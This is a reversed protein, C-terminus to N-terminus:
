SKRTNCELHHQPRGPNSLLELFGTLVQIVPYPSNPSLFWRVSWLLRLLLVSPSSLANLTENDAVSKCDQFFGLLWSYDRWCVTPRGLTPKRSFYHSKLHEVTM